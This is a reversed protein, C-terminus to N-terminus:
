LLLSCISLHHCLDVTMQVLCKSSLSYSKNVDTAISFTFWLPLISIIKFFFNNLLYDIYIKLGECVNQTQPLSILISTYTLHQMTAYFTSIVWLHYFLQSSLSPFHLFSFAPKPKQEAKLFSSQMSIFISTLFYFITMKIKKVM